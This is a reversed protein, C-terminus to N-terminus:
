RSFSRSDIRFSYSVTLGPSGEASIFGNPTACIAQCAERQAGNWATLPCFAGGVLNSRGDSTTPHARTSAKRHGRSPYTGRASRCPKVCQSLMLTMPSADCGRFSTRRPEASRGLAPAEFGRGRGGPTVGLQTFIPFIPRKAFFRAMLSNGQFLRSM